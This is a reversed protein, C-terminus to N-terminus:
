KGCMQELVTIKPIKMRNKRVGEFHAVVMYDRNSAFREIINAM